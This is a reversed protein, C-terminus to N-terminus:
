MSLAPMPIKHIQRLQDPRANGPRCTSPTKMESHEPVDKGHKGHSFSFPMKRLVFNAEVQACLGNKKAIGESITPRGHGGEFSPRRLDKSPGETKRTM